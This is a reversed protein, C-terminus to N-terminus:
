NAPEYAGRQYARLKASRSRPNDRMEERTPKIVKKNVLHGEENNKFINKVIRDELSHFTIVAIRGQESLASMLLPLGETLVELEQNVRLRLAMFYQTAPHHGKRQWRNVREIMSALQRTTTYRETKRDHIIAKVIRYPSRIEGLEKFISILEEEPWDNVIEEATLAQSKDMRMDLPGDHYFSFGRAANDLQPSSVGLDLLIGDFTKGPIKERFKYFNGRVLNVTKAAIAPAFKSEGERIAEEDQDMAWLEVNPFAKLLAESHGGRGFTADLFVQPSKLAKFVEIVENLLVPKHQQSAMLSTM